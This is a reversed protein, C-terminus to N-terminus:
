GEEKGFHYEDTFGLMEWVQTMSIGFSYAIDELDQNEGYAINILKSLEDYGLNHYKSTQPM